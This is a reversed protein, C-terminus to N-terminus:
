KFIGVLIRWFLVSFVILTAVRCDRCAKLINWLVGARQLDAPRATASMDASCPGLVMDLLALGFGSGLLALEFSRDLWAFGFGSDLLAYGFGNKNTIARTQPQMVGALKFNIEICHVEIHHPCASSFCSCIAPMSLYPSTRNLGAFLGMEPNEENSRLGRGM